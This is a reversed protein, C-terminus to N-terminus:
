DKTCLIVDRYKVALDIADGTFTHTHSGGGGTGGIQEGGTNSPTGTFAPQTFNGTDNIMFGGSTDSDVNNVYGSRWPHGHLPIQAITLTTNGVTGSPTQPAFATTFDATGGTGGGTGSVVRIAANDQATSKTWGVPASAQAFLMATGSSFTGAAIRCGNSTDAIVLSRAGQPVTVAAVGDTFSVSFSGTTLNEIIVMGEFSTATVTRDTPLTGTLRVILNQSEDATLVVDAAALSKSVIGGLNNDIITIVDDNLVSGWTGSNTGTTQVEYGKYPTQPM